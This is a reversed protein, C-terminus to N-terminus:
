RSRMINVCDVAVHSILVDVTAMTVCTRWSTCAALQRSTYTCVVCLASIVNDSSGDSAVLHCQICGCQVIACLLGDPRGVFMVGCIRTVISM